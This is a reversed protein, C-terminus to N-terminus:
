EFSEWEVGTENGSNTTMQRWGWLHYRPSYNPDGRRGQVKVWPLLGLNVTPMHMQPVRHPIHCVHTRPVTGKKEM